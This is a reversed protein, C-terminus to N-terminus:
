FGIAYACIPVMCCSVVNLIKVLLSKALFLIIINFNVKFQKSLHLSSQDPEFCYCNDLQPSSFELNVFHPLIEQSGWFFEAKLFSEAWTLILVEITNM